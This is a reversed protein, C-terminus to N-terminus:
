RRVKGRRSEERIMNLVMINKNKEKGKSEKVEDIAMGKGERRFKQIRKEKEKISM